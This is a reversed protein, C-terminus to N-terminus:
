RAMLEECPRHPTLNCRDAIVPWRLDLQHCLRMLLDTESRSWASSSLLAAYEEDTYMVGEAKVNFKAYPYDGAIDAARGWHFVNLDNANDRASNSFTTWVWKGQLANQRKNKFSSAATPTYSVNSPLISDKGLM